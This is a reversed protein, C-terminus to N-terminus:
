VPTGENGYSREASYMVDTRMAYKRGKKLEEGEHFIDHQFILVSGTKPVVPEVEFNSGLFNTAGGQFGENLYLQFTICSREGNERIYVGDYHPKFYEGKDYRLYRLRENLGLVKRGKFVPPVFDKIRRWLETAYEESDIICRSSNRIDTMAKQRGFGTNVLALEYGKKETKDILEKCEQPTLVNYLVFALKDQKCPLKVDEKTISPSAASGESTASAM